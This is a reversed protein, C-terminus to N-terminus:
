PRPELGLLVAAQQRDSFPRETTGTIQVTEHGKGALVVVDDPSSTTVAFAIAAARDHQVVVRDDGPHEPLGALIDDIIAAPSESRPNDDTIVIRDAGALAASGMLPRKGRDRDGGCGFVVTLQGTCHERVSRLVQVLAAPTHAYDVVVLPRGEARFGEIRGPVTEAESLAAAIDQLRLGGVRLAAAAAVLNYANFRGLLRSNVEASGEPGQLQVRLGEAHLQLERGILYDGQLPVEGELGYTLVDPFAELWRRGWGDDRNLACVGRTYRSFLTRKAEVYAAESGHYDLHDRTINTLVGVDFRMGAVRRQDLAHSSVEMAVARVGAKLQAALQAQLSVPDLTTHTSAVLTPLRGTGLTGFYACPRGLRELAQAVLWATSTKGDTGTIGVTFLQDAPRGYFRSAIEGSCHSLQPVPVVPVEASPSAVGAAPEWAIASAGQALAQDLYRLGHIGTVGQIALFLDGPRVKRSDLAVGTVPLAPVEAALGQLLQDLAQPKM